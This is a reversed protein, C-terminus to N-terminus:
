APRHAPPPRCSRLPIPREPRYGGTHSVENGVHGVDRSRGRQDIPPACGVPAGHPAPAPTVAVPHIPRRARPLVEIGAPLLRTQEAAHEGALVSEIVAQADAADDPHILERFTRGVVESDSLGFVRAAAPSQWQIRLREDLVLTLDTAGAVLSRFHAEKEALQGAYQRIDRVVASYDSEGATVSTNLM